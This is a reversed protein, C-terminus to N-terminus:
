RITIGILVIFLILQIFFLLVSGFSQLLASTPENKRKFIRYLMWFVLVYVFPSFVSPLKLFILGLAGILTSQGIVFSNITLHEAYNFKGFILKTSNSLWIVSFIWFYKFNTRVFKGAAEGVSYYESKIRDKAVPFDVFSDVILYFTISIILFSIPNLIGKRKGSLYDSIIKDPHISLHKLNFLFGKDMSTVTHFLDKSISGFTIKPVGSKEGCNPCFNESHEKRCNVCEMPHPRKTCTDSLRLKFATSNKLNEARRTNLESKFGHAAQMFPRIVPAFSAASEDTCNGGIARHVFSGGVRSRTRPKCRVHFKPLVTRNGAVFGVRRVSPTTKLFLALAADGRRLQERLHAPKCLLLASVAPVDPVAALCAHRAGAASAFFLGGFIQLAIRASPSLRVRVPKRGCAGSVHTDVLKVM